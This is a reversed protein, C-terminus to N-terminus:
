RIIRSWSKFRPTGCAHLMEFVGMEVTTFRVGEQEMRRLAIELNRPSRSSVADACVFVEYDQRVLHLATQLVCVHSEIGCLVVQRRGTQELAKAFPDDMACSFTMKQMPAPSAEPRVVPDGTSAPGANLREKLADVIAPTTPGLGQPYQETLLIPADLIQFGRILKVIQAVLSDHEHIFPLLKEQVDIVVLVAQERNLM